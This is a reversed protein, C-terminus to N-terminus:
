QEFPAIWFSRWIQLRINVNWFEGGVVAVVPFNLVGFFFVALQGVTTCTQEKVDHSGLSLGWFALGGMFYPYCHCIM